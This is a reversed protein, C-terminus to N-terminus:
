YPWHRHALPLAAIHCDSIPSSNDGLNVSFGSNVDNLRMALRSFVDKNRITAAMLLGDNIRNAMLRAADKIYKENKGKILLMIEHLAEVDALRWKCLSVSDSVQHMASGLNTYDYVYVVDDIYSVRQMRLIAGVMFIWDEGIKVGPLFRVDPNNLLKARYIRAFNNHGGSTGCCRQLLDEVSSERNYIYQIKNNGLDMIFTGSVMDSNEQQQRSVLRSIACPMLYDDADVFMVFEGTHHDLFTNRAVSVGKNKDHHIIMVQHKREPFSDLVHKVIESSRDPSCDDVFIIELDQYDQSFISRACREIYKEANYVPVCVSVKYPTKEM